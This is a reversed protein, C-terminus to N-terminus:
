PAKSHLSATTGESEDDTYMVVNLTRLRLSRRRAVAKVVSPTRDIADVAPGGLQAVKPLKIYATRCM